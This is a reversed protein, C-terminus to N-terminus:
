EKLLKAFHVTDSTTHFVMLYTGRSLSSVNIKQVRNQTSNLEKKLVLAGSLSFVELLDINADIEWNIFDQAPNPYVSIKQRIMGEDIQTIVQNIFEATAYGSGIGGRYFGAENLLTSGAYGAAEGGAYFSSLDDTEAFNDGSGIGGEYFGNDNLLETSSVGAGIGGNYFGTGNILESNASGDGMGGDYFGNNNVLEFNSNGAGSGGSYFGNDNILEGHADGSGSGGAFVLLTNIKAYVSDISECGNETTLQLSYYGSTEVTIEDETAGTSWLYSEAVQPSVLEIRYFASLTDPFNFVIPEDIEILITDTANQGSDDTIRVAYTGTTDVDITRTTEGTSWLYSSAEGADLTVTGQCQGIDDGLNVVPLAPTNNFDVKVMLTYATDITVNGLKVQGYPPPNPNTTFSGPGGFRMTTVLSGDSLYEMPFKDGISNAGNSIYETSDVSLLIGNVDYIALFYDRESDDNLTIGNGDFTVTEYNGLVAYQNNVKDVGIQNYLDGGTIQQVWILEGNNDLKVIANGNYPFGGNDLNNILTDDGIILDDQFNISLLIDTGDVVIDRLQENESGDFKPEADDTFGKLWLPNGASNFKALFVGDKSQSASIRPLTGFTLGVSENDDIFTGGLLVNGDTDVEVDLTKDDEFIQENWDSDGKIAWAVTGNAQYKILLPDRERGRASFSLGNTLEFGADFAMALFLEGSQTVAIDSLRIRDGRNELDESEAYQDDRWLLNGMPDLKILQYGGKYSPDADQLFTDNLSTVPDGSEFLLYINGTADVDMSLLVMEDDSRFTRIWNESGDQDYSAVFLNESARESNTSLYTSDLFTIQSYLGGVIFQNNISESIEEITVFEPYRGGYEKVWQYDQAFTNFAMVGFFFFLILKKM